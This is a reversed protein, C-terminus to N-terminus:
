AVKQPLHSLLMRMEEDSLGELEDLMGALEEGNESRNEIIAAALGAVTPYAFFRRLSVQAQFLTPIRSIVQTANLSHGGIDFFNDHIGVRQLKLVEAWIRALGEEIPTRPAVYSQELDPRAPDPAPLARRDIKGNLTLPLAGIFVFASPIMYYPLKTSMFSRLETSNLTAERMPVVYAVLRKDGPTDERALVVTEWVRPDQRLVTEIEETEIRLGHIKVQHDVRGIFELNGDPRYRVLDGTRYLRSDPDKSFPDPIFQEATLQPRKLYGRAVGAGGILLEGPVGAPVPNLDQDSVYLQVNPIP